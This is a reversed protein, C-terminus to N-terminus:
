CQRTLVDKLSAWIGFVNEFDLRIWDIMLKELTWNITM